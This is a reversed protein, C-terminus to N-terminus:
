ALTVFPPVPEFNSCIDTTRVPVTTRLPNRSLLYDNLLITVFSHTILPTVCHLPLAESPATRVMVVPGMVITASFVGLSGNRM